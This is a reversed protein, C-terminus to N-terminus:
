LRVPGRVSGGSSGNFQDEMEAAIAELAQLDPVENGRRVAAQWEAVLQAVPKGGFVRMGNGRSPLVNAPQEALRGFPGMQIWDIRIIRGVLLGVLDGAVDQEVEKPTGAVARLVEMVRSEVRGEARMARELDGAALAALMEDYEGDSQIGAAALLRSMSGTARYGPGHAGTWGEARSELEYVLSRSRGKENVCQVRVRGRAVDGAGEERVFEVGVIVVREYM